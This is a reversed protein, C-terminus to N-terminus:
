EATLKLCFCQGDNCVTNYIMIYKLHCCWDAKATFQDSSIKHIDVSCMCNVSYKLSM